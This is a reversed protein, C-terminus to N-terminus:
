EFCDDGKAPCRTEDADLSKGKLVEAMGATYGRLFHCVAVDSKGYGRAIFSNEVGVVLENGRDENVNFIGWGLEAYFKQIADLFRQDKLGWNKNIRTAVKKPKRINLLGEVPGM